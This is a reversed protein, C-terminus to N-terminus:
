RDLSDSASSTARVDAVYSQQARLSLLNDEVRAALIAIILRPTDWGVMTDNAYIAADRTRDSM